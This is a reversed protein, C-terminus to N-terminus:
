KKKETLAKFKKFFDFAESKHALFYIWNMQSFDDIFLLFYKSGAHSETKMPGCIDAYVLELKVDARKTQGVHFSRRSQKGLACGECLNDLDKVVPLGKVMDKHKLLQLGKVYLHGYRQHWLSSDDDKRSMMGYNGNFSCDIPFMNNETMQVESVFDGSKKRIVCSTDEFHLSFGSRM